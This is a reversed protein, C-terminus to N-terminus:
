QGGGFEARADAMLCRMDEEANDVATEFNEPDMVSGAYYGHKGTTHIEHGRLEYTTNGRKTTM